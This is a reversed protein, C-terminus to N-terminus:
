EKMGTSIWKAILAISCTDIKKNARYPMPIFGKQHTLSGILFGSEAMKKLSPYDYIKNRSAKTKYNEADHCKFCKVEILPAIDNTYTVNESVNCLDKAKKNCAISVLTLGIFFLSKLCTTYTCHSIKM